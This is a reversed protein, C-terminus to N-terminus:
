LRQPMRTDATASSYRARDPSSLEQAEIFAKRFGIPDSISAIPAQPTGAGSVVVTGFNFLRGMVSQHVQVSEVRNLAIEITSRSIFGFKAIVRKNTIALETSAMKVYAMVFVVLGLGFLPLLLVGILYYQWLSWHSIRGRYLIKEGATLVSDVYSAM